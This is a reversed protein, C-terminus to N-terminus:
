IHKTLLNPWRSGGEEGCAYLHVTIWIWLGIIRVLQKTNNFVPYKHQNSIMRIEKLSGTATQNTAMKNIARERSKVEGKKSYAPLYFMILGTSEMSPASGNIYESM